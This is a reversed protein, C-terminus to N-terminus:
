VHRWTLVEFEGPKLGLLEGARDRVNVAGWRNCECPHDGAPIGAGYFPFDGFMEKPVRVMSPVWSPPRKEVIAKYYESEGEPKM